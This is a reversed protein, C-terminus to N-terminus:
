ILGLVKRFAWYIALLFLMAGAWWANAWLRFREEIPEKEPLAIIARLIEDFRDIGGHKGGTMVAIDRLVGANAPQGTKEVKPQSVIIETDLKHKGSASFVQVKYTGGERVVFSGKFVGWGGTVSNFEITETAGSPSIIKARMAEQGAASSLDMITAQLFINDNLQPNEPSFALRVGQGQAMKRKHAMWRAVQGWFRYHYRDEVGRRWRWASDTGMFLVEGNGYPRTALLPIRGATNRLNSHVALVQAGPRARMVAASWYFGPLNKWIAENLNEDAALMTLFHGKGENTLLLNSESVQSVGEVKQEDLTVPMLDALPHGKFSLQRGRSGPLFVLGSGQQEILGKLLDADATTMEDGGLGVDGIFVVDYESLQEKTGPFKQLYHPGQGPGLEPHYLLTNVEVGPDRVLANRLYRYEWRPLSEVVLVKLKETRVSIHFSQQNNDTLREEPQVPINITLTYEGLARPSWVVSDQVTGYPPIVVQKKVDVGGASTLSVMARVDRPLHSRVKFPISIQEGLLGFAPVAVPELLLDPLSRDAGVSVTYVPVRASRLQSAAVLPSDGVNWDGDSIMLMVKLNKSRVRASDMAKNLDSGDPLVNENTPGMAFPELRVKAGSIELSKWFNTEMRGKLWDERRIIRGEYEVDQSTMSGSVDTLVVIEPPDSKYIRRVREPKCLTFLILTVVVFRLLENAAVGKGGRRRWNAWSLWGAGIWILALFALLLPSTSFTWITTM